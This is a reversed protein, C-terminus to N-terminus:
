FGPVVAAVPVLAHKLSTPKEIGTQTFHPTTMLFRTDSSTEAILVSLEELLSETLAQQKIYPLFMNTGMFPM